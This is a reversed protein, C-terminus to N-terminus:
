LDFLQPSYKSQACGPELYAGTIMNGLREDDGMWQTYFEASEWGYGITALFQQPSKVEIVNIMVKRCDCTRDTCYNETLGYKGHPLGYQSITTTIVRTEKIALEKYRSYFPIFDM